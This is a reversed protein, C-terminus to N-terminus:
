LGMEAQLAKLAEEDEDEEVTAEPQAKNVTPFSPLQQAPQKEPAAKQAPVQQQQEEAQLAALEEELEDEDVFETGVPRSIAESIEDALEVQERIDDMTDEVKEVNYEGHIQKMASAGQKMAKMTELNLNAGEIAGLQTELSEIQNETKILAVEYGKKKKLANKAAAKNTSLNKRAIAEQDAMQQELHSRKKNLTNIHERLEVIAKKPLEKKTSSNGGFFYNWM